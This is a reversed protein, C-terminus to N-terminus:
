DRKKAQFRFIEGEQYTMNIIIQDASFGNCEYIVECVCLM